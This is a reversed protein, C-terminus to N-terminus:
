RWQCRHSLSHWLDCYFDCVTAHIQGCRTDTRPPLIHLLAATSTFPLCPWLDRGPNRETLGSPACKFAMLSPTALQVDACTTFQKIPHLKQLGILEAIGIERYVQAKIHHMWMKVFHLEFIFTIWILIVAAYICMFLWLSNTIHFICQKKVAWHSFNRLFFLFLCFHILVQYKTLNCSNTTWLKCVECVVCRVSGWVRTYIQASDSEHYIQTRTYHGTSMLGGNTKEQLWVATNLAFMLRGGVEFGHMAVSGSVIASFSQITEM